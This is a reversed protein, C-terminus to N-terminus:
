GQIQKLEVADNFLEVKEEKTETNIRIRVQGNNKAIFRLNKLINKGAKLTTKDKFKSTLNYCTLFARDTRSKIRSIDTESPLKTKGRSYPTIAAIPNNILFDSWIKANDGNHSGHHSIKFFCSKTNNICKCHNIVHGWGMTSKNFEELDAGFLFSDDNVNILTAISSYNHKPPNIRQSHSQLISSLSVDNKFKVYSSPSIAYINLIDTGAEEQHLLTDVSGFCFDPEKQLIHHLIKTLEDFGNPNVMSRKSYIVALKRFEQEKFVNPLVIKANKCEKILQSSGKIHDDHWHTM